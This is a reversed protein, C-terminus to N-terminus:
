KKEHKTFRYYKTLIKIYNIRDILVEGIFAFPIVILVAILVGTYTVQNGTSLYFAILDEIVGLIVGFMLFEMFVEIKKYKKGLNFLKLFDIQDVVYEGIFAFPLTVLFIIGLMTYTFPEKSLFSILILDEIIGLIIGGILFEFFVFYKKYKEKLYVEIKQFSYKKM